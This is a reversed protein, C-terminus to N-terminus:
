TRGTKMTRLEAVARIPGQWRCICSPSCVALKIVLIRCSIDPFKHLKYLKYVSYTYTKQRQHVKSNSWILGLNMSVEKTQHPSFLRAHCGPPTLNGLWVLLSWRAIHLKFINSHYMATGTFHSFLPCVILDFLCVIHGFWLDSTGNFAHLRQCTRCTM